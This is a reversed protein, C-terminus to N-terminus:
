CPLVDPRGRRWATLCRIAFGGDGTRDRSPGRETLGDRVTEIARLDREGDPTLAAAEAGSETDLLRMGERGIDATQAVSTCRETCRWAASTDTGTARLTEFEAKPGPLPPLKGVGAATDHLGVHSYRDMTLTITSHRALEQAVKPSVGSRALNSIFTHRLAHFDAFRGDANQYSLFDSAERHERETANGKAEAIWAKRAAALDAQMLEAAKFSSAWKGPWLLGDRGALWERLRRVLDPHLPLVDQRKRKSYAAEVIVTPPIADLDFSEPTLSALESARLGTYLSTTYLMARDPGCLNRRNPGPRTAELLRAVEDAALDRRDHRRDTDVNGGSLHALPSDAARRDKVLWRCFGKVATLHYNATQVSRGQKYTRGRTDTWGEALLDALFQQVASASLDALFVFGCGDFVRRARSTSLKAHKGTRGRAKMDAEWDDLHQTLPTKRHQEFPDVIGIKANENKNVLAALMQQAVTKNASLPVRHLEGSADTYSGYWKKAKAKKKVAGATAATVRTGDSTRTSGSPLTYRIITPKFLSAM